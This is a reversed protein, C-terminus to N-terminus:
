PPSPRRLDGKHVFHFQLDQRTTIRLTGDAVEDALADAALWQEPSLVGGPLSTRVMCSYALEQRAATRARRQDRDDQQYTGHFKLLTTADGSFQDRDSGLEAALTGRLHHSSTKVDEVPSGM